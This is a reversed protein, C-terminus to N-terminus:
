RLTCSPGNAVMLALFWFVIPSLGSNRIRRDIRFPNFCRTPNPPLPQRLSSTDSEDPSLEDEAAVESKTVRAIERGDQLILCAESIQGPYLTELYRFDQAVKARAQDSPREVLEALNPNQALIRIISQSRTFYNRLNSAEVQVEARLRASRGEIARQRGTWLGLAVSAVLLVIGLLVSGRRLNKV